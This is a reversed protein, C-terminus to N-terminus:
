RGAASGTEDVYRGRLRLLPAAGPNLAAVDDILLLALV